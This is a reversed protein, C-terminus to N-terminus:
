WACCSMWDMFWQFRVLSREMLVVCRVERGVCPPKTEMSIIMTSIMMAMPTPRPSAAAAPINLEDLALSSCRLMLTM